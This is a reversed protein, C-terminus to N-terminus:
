FDRKRKTISFEWLCKKESHSPQFATENYNKVSHLSNQVQEPSLRDTLDPDPAGARPWNRANTLTQKRSSLRQRDQHGPITLQMATDPRLCANM